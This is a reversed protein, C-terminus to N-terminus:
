GSTHVYTNGLNAYNQAHPFILSAMKMTHKSSKNIVDYGHFSGLRKAANEFPHYWSNEDRKLVKLIKLNNHLMHTISSGIYYLVCEASMHVNYDRPRGKRNLFCRHLSDGSANLDIQQCLSSRLTLGRVQPSCPTKAHSFM